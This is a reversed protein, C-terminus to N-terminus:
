ANFLESAFSSIRKAYPPNSLVLRKHNEYARLLAARSIDLRKSMESWSLGAIERYLAARVALWLRDDPLEPIAWSPTRNQERQLLAEVAARSAAPLGPQTADALTAKRQM